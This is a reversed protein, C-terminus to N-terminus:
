CVYFLPAIKPIFFSLFGDIEKVGLRRGGDDLLKKKGEAELRQEGDGGV